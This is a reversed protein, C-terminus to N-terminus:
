LSTKRPPGTAVAELSPHEVEALVGLSEAMANIDKIVSKHIEYTMAVGNGVSLKMEVKRVQYWADNREHVRM